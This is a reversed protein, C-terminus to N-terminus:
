NMKVMGSHPNWQKESCKSATRNIGWLESQIDAMDGLSLGKGCRQKNEYSGTYLMHLFQKEQAATMESFTEVDYILRNSSM